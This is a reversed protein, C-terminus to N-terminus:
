AYTEVAAVSNVITIRADYGLTEDIAAKFPFTAPFRRVNRLSPLDVGTYQCAPMKIWMSYPYGTAAITKPSRWRAKAAFTTGALVAALDDTDLVRKPISGTPVIKEDGHELLDPFYSPTDLGLSSYRILPNPFTMSFDTASAGGGLWSLRLDGRRFHPISLSDYSPTLNPDAISGFVLGVLSSTFMGAANLGFTSIGMGQGRLFQGEDAFAVTIQASKAVTGTRKTFVWRSTGTPAQGTVVEGGTTAPHSGCGTFSTPTKGTYTVATTVPGATTLLFTGSSPFEATSAVNVTTSDIANVGTATTENGDAVLAGGATVTGTWGAITLLYVLPNAYARMNITGVVEHGDVLGPPEGELGRIEDSRSDFQPGPELGVEQAPMYLVNSSLRYPATLPAGEYRPTEEIVLQALDQTTPM